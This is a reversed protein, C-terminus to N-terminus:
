ATRRWISVQVYPPMNNHAATNGVSNTEWHSIATSTVGTGQNFRMSYTDTQTGNLGSNDGITWSSGSTYRIRDHKHRPMEAESLTHTQEGGTAGISASSGVGWLFANEIRAWTGGFLSAPSTHNYAIYISGVPWCKLLMAANSTNDVNGLGLDSKSPTWTSPRAGVDSASLSINSSLAKGNVTRGTPVAGVDAASPTWTNPRAGVDSASPMWTNPRAGVDSATLTIDSSLAKGNVTRGVPVAGTQAATVEHPNDRRDAHDLDEEGENADPFVMSAVPTFASVDVPQFENSTFCGHLVNVNVAVGNEVNAAYYVDLYHVEKDETINLRVETIQEEKILLHQRYLKATGRMMLANIVALTPKKNQWVGAVTIQAAKTNSHKVNTFTGVRYWGPSTLKGAVEVSAGRNASGAAVADGLDVSDGVGFIKNGNMAMDWGIDLGNREPYKGFSAGKGGDRLMFTVSETPIAYVVVKKEGVSDEAKLEVEYSTEASFGSLVKQGQNAIKEYDGWRGGAVRTRVYVSVENRGNVSECTATCKVTICTGSENKTADSNSRYVSSSITPVAYEYVTIATGKSEGSTRKRSDNVTAIPTYTGASSIVDTTGSLLSANQGACSFSGGIIDAGYAKNGTVTFNIKSYGRVYVGWERFKAKDNVPSIQIDKVSPLVYAPVYATFKQSIRGIEIKDVGNNYTILTMSGERSPGDTIQACLDIRPTWDSPGGAVHDFITESVNGLTYQLVHTFPDASSGITLTNKEGLTIAPVTLTSARPISALVLVKNAYVWGTYTTNMNFGAEVTLTKTGDAKHEIWHEGSYLATTTNIDVKRGNLDIETGEFRIYGQTTGDHSWTGLTTTISLNIRVLSKNTAADGTGIQTVNLTLEAAM